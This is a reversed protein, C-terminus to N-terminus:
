AAKAALGEGATSVFSLRKQVYPRLTALSSAIRESVCGDGYLVAPEYRGNALQARLAAVVAAQLPPVDTVHVGRERGAQRDGVLVVPTGFYGADRVFSSSNGVACATTALTRLYDEPTLNTVIRLWDPSRQDRFVRIAKSIHDAGADINPWLMVTPMRVQDLASLLCNM